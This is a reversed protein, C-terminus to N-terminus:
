KGLMEESLKVACRPRLRYKGFDDDLLEVGIAIEGRRQGVDGFIGTGANGLDLFRQLQDLPEIRRTNSRAAKGLAEGQM